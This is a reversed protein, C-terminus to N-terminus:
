ALVLVLIVMAASRSATIAATVNGIVARDDIRPMFTMTLSVVWESLQGDRQCDHEHHRDRQQDPGLALTPELGPNADTTSVTAHPQQERPPDRYVVSSQEARDDASLAFERSQGHPLEGLGDSDGDM